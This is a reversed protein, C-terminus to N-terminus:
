TGSWTRQTRIKGSYKPKLIMSKFAVSNCSTWV